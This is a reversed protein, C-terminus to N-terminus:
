NGGEYTSMHDKLDMFKFISKNSLSPRDAVRMGSTEVITNHFSGGVITGVVFKNDLILAGCLDALIACEDKKGEVLSLRTFESMVIDLLQQVVTTALADHECLGMLFKGLAQRKGNLKNTECFGDYDVNPDVATISKTMDEFVKIQRPIEETLYPHSNALESYYEAYMRSYFPTNCVIGFVTTLVAAESFDDLDKLKGLEAKLVPLLVSAKSGTLKNFLKRVEDLGREFGLKSPRATVKFSANPRGGGREFRPVRSYSRSTVLALIDTVLKQSAADPIFKGQLTMRRAYIDALSISMPVM